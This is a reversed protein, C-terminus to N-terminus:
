PEIDFDFMDDLMADDFDPDFDFDPVYDFDFGPDLDDFEPDLGIYGGEDDHSTVRENFRPPYSGATWTTDKPLLAQPTIPTHHTTALLNTSDPLATVKPNNDPSKLSKSSTISFAHTL